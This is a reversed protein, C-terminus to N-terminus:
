LGLDWPEWCGFGWFLFDYSWLVLSEPRKRGASVSFHGHVDFLFLTSDPHCFQAADGDHTRRSAYQRADTNRHICSTRRLLSSSRSSPRGPLSQRHMVNVRWFAYKRHYPICKSEM